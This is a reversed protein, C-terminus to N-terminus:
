DRPTTFRLVKTTDTYFGRSSGLSFELGVNLPYTRHDVAGNDSNLHRGLRDAHAQYDLGGLPIPM